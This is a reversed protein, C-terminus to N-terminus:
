PKVWDIFLGIPTVIIAIRVIISPTNNTIPPSEKSTNPANKAATGM